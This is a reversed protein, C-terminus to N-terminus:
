DTCSFLMLSFPNDMELFHVRIEKHIYSERASCYCTSILNLLSPTNVLLYSGWSCLQRYKKNVIVNNMVKRSRMFNSNQVILNLVQYKQLIDSIFSILNDTKPLVANFSTSLYCFSFLTNRVDYFNQNILNNGQLKKVIKM